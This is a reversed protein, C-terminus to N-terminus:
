SVACSATFATERAGVITSRAWLRRGDPLFRQRTNFIWLVPQVVNAAAVPQAHTSIKPAHDFFSKVVIDRWRRCAEFLFAVSQKTRGRVIPHSLPYKLNRRGDPNKGGGEIPANRGGTMDMDPPYQRTVPM